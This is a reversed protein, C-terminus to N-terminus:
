SPLLKEALELASSAALETGIGHGGAEAGVLYLGKVPTEHTPRKEHIQRVTQGVGIVNGDEGAYADIVDPSDVATWLIHQNIDPFMDALCDLMIEEWKNWDQDRECRTGFFILQKGPPALEPDFNTPSNLMGGAVYPMPEGDIYKKQLEEIEDDSLDPMYMIMKQDTIVTDLAVKLAVVHATYELSKVREVYEDPFHSADALEGITVKIDANSVVRDAHITEGGAVVGRAAGDEIIIKEAPCHLRTEGGKNEMITQYARPIAVCGGRPYGSSKHKTVGRLCLIFEATSAVDPTVCLYIGCLMAFSGLVSNDTSFQSLWELLPTYWLTNLEDDTMSMVKVFIQALPGLDKKDVNEMMVDRTFPKTEGRFHVAVRPNRALVWEIADPAGSRRCVEGLPGNDGEGFLHVGLDVVFGDRMYSLCRGGIISNKEILMVKQGGAALLAGLASGGIGGGIIVTDFKDAMGEEM